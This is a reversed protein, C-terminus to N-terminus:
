VRAIIRRYENAIIKVQNTLDRQRAKLLCAEGMTKLIEPHEIIKRINKTLSIPEDHKHLYGNVGDQILEPIGGIDSALVPTGTALAEMIAVPSNEPWISPVILADVNRYIRDIRSNAVAGYFTILGALGLQKALKKCYDVYENEGSGVILFFVKNKEEDNLLSISRLFNEIGKHEIIQGIYAFKIEKSKTKKINDFRFIDVGNNIVKIKAEEIGCDIFRSALYRSPSILLDVDNLCQRFLTNREHVTIRGGRDLRLMEQCYICGEEKRNCLLGNDNLLTNKFCIGWFDHLTMVIPIHMKHCEDIMKLSLSFINHFHVVDPAVNYLEERFREQLIDKDFSAFNYDFDVDHLNIRRVKFDVKEKSIHYQKAANNLRGAFINVEFNMEKLKKCQEYAVIESGGLVYPPFLHSVVLVRRKHRSVNSYIDFVKNGIKKLSYKNDIREKGAEGLRKALEKDFLIMKIKEKLSNVDGYEACLGAGKIIEPIAGRNSGIVPKGHKWAELFVIGFSEFESPLVLLDSLKLLNIKEEESVSGFNIVKLRGINGLNSYRINSEVAEPGVLFLCLDTNGEGAIDKAAEILTDVGKYFLKIGVFIIKKSSECIGYKKFLRQRLSNFDERKEYTRERYFCGTIYIKGPDIRKKTLYDKEYKSLAIVADSKRMIDFFMKKEYHEHYPHFYPTIVIKKGYMGAIFYGVINHFYPLTHLHVIDVDRIESFLRFYMEFSHPSHKFINGIETRDLKLKYLLFYIIKADLRRSWFTWLKYRKVFVGDDYDYKGLKICEQSIPPKKFFEEINNLNITAVKSIVGKDALFKSINSCWLESGGIAPPYRQIIHLVKM